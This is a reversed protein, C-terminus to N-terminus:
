GHNFKRNVLNLFPELQDMLSAFAEFNLAQFGDSLAQSPDPHVEVIIGDAGCAIAAKSM